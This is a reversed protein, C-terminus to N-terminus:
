QIIAEIRFFLRSRDEPLEANPITVTQSGGDSPAPSAYDNWVSLDTSWFVQYIVGSQAQWSVDVGSEGLAYDAVRFVSTSSLPSTGLREEARDSLGDGDSDVTTQDAGSSGLVSLDSAFSLEWQDSLSDGDQDDLDDVIPVTPKVGSLVLQTDAAVTQGLTVKVTEPVFLSVGAASSSTLADLWGAGGPYAVIANPRYPSHAPLVLSGTRNEAAAPATPVTTQTGAPLLTELSWLRAVELDTGEPITSLDRGYGALTLVGDADGKVPFLRGGFPGNLFYLGHTGALEGNAWTGAKKLRLTFDGNGVAEPRARLADRFVIAEFCSITARTVADTECTLPAEVVVARSAVDAMAPLFLGGALSACTTIHFRKM